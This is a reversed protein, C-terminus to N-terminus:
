YRLINSAQVEKLEDVSIMSIGCCEKPIVLIGSLTTHRKNSLMIRKLIISDILFEISSSRVTNKEEVHKGDRIISPNRFSVASVYFVLSIHTM